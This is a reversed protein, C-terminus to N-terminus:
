RLTVPVFTHHINGQYELAGIDCVGGNYPRPLGRQDDLPCGANTGANIVPSALTPLLSWTPGGNDQLPGLLPNTGSLDTTHTLPCSADAALNHGLSLWNGYCNSPAGGSLITNLANLASPLGASMLNGGPWAPYAATNSILTDNVLSLNGLSLYVGGGASATNSVITSDVILGNGSVYIGGGYAFTHSTM